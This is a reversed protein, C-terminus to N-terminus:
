LNKDTGTETVAETAEEAPKSEESGADSEKAKKERQGRQKHHHGKKHRQQRHKKMAVMMKKADEPSMTWNAEVTTDDVAVSLGDFIRKGAEDSGHRILGMARFGEVIKGLSEAAESTKAVLEAKLFVQGDKEGVSMAFRKSQRTLRSRFPLDHTILGKSRINLITGAVVPGALPSDASLSESTGDLVEVTRKLIDIDRSVLLTDGGHLYGTMEHEHRKGEGHTWTILQHGRYDAKAIEPHRQTLREVLQQSDLNDAQFMILGHHQQFRTDFLTVSHLDSSMDIGLEKQLRKLRAVAREGRLLDESFQQGLKSERLADFDVHVLWKADAPVRRVDLPGAWVSGVATLFFLFVTLFLRM